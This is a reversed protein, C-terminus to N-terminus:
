QGLAVVQVTARNRQKFFGLDVGDDPKLHWLKHRRIMQDTGAKTRREDAIPHYEVIVVIHAVVFYRM